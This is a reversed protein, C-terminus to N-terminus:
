ADTYRAFVFAVVVHKCRQRALPHWVNKQFAKTCKVVVVESSDLLPKFKLQALSDSGLPVELEFPKREAWIKSHLLHRPAGFRSNGSHFGYVDAFLAIGFLM